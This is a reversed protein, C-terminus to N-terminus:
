SLLSNVSRKMKLSLFIMRKRLKNKCDASNFWGGAMACTALAYRVPWPTSFSGSCAWYQSIM